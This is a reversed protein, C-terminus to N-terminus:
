TSDDPHDGAGIATSILTNLENALVSANEIQAEPVCSSSTKDLINKLAQSLRRIIKQEPLYMPMTMLDAKTIYRSCVGRICADFYKKAFSTNLYLCLYYSDVRKSSLVYVCDSAFANTPWIVIACRGACGKGVRVLLVDGKRILASQNQKGLKSDVMLRQPSERIIFNRIDISHIYELDGKRTLLSREKGYFGYGRACSDLCRGLPKFGHDKKKLSAMTIHYGPDMRSLLEEQNVVVTHVSKINGDVSGLHIKASRGTKVVSKQAVVLSIRAESSDFSNIPLSLVLRVQTYTLLFRRFSETKVGSVLGEPLLIAVYGGNDVLELNRLFFAAETLARYGGNGDTWTLNHMFLTDLLDPALEEAEITGFPPNSLALNVSHTRSNCNLMDRIAPLNTRLTDICGFTGFGEFRSECHDVLDQDIDFGTICCAPWKKKAFWLLEGKGVSLDVVMGANSIPIRNMMLECIEVPTFHQSWDKKSLPILSNSESFTVKEAQQFISAM